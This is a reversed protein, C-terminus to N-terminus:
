HRDSYQNLLPDDSQSVGGGGTGSLPTNLIQQTEEAREAEHKRKMAMVLMIGAFVTVVILGIVVYKAVDMGTTTKQMIREATQNFMAPYAQDLEISSDTWYRDYYAWFIEEAEADIVSKVLDGYILYAWGEESTGTDFYALLLGGEGDVHADYWDKAYQESAADNGTVGDIYGFLALAPQVGTKDYFPKMARSVGADDIWGLGDYVNDTQYSANADLRARAATSKPINGGASFQASVFIAAAILLVTVIVTMNVGGGRGYSFSRSYGGYHNHVHM